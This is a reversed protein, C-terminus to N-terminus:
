HDPNDSGQEPEAEQNGVREDKPEELPDIIIDFDKPDRGIHELQRLAWERAEAESDVNAPFRISCKHGRVQLTVVFVAL